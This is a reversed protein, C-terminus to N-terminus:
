MMRMSRGQLAARNSEDNPIHRPLAALGRALKIAANAMKSKCLFLRAQLSVPAFSNFVRLFLSRARELAHEAEPPSL